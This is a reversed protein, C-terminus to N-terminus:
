ATEAARHRSLPRGFMTRLLHTGRGCADVLEDLGDRILEREDDAEGHTASDLALGLHDLSIELLNLGAIRAALNEDDVADKSASPCFLSNLADGAISLVLSNARV